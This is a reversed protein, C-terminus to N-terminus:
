EETNPHDLLAGLAAWRPDTDDHRHEGADALRAGCRPCLGPCDDACLPTAPLELVLADRVAPALDLHDGVLLPLEDDAPDPEYLFLEQLDVELEDRVPELCRGCEGALEATVTGTVLVGEMVAELRLELALPSGAPVGVTSLAVGAPAPVRLSVRRMSGPRRGLERTDLVFPARPDLRVAARVPSRPLPPNM